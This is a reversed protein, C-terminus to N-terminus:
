QLLITNARSHNKPHPTMTNIEKRKASSISFAKNQNKM